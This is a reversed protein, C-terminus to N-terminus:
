NEPNENLADMDEFDMRRLTDQFEKHPFFRVKVTRVLETGLDAPNEASSANFVPKLTGIGGLQVSHGLELYHRLRDSMATAIGKVQAASVGQSMVCEKVFNEFKVPPYSVQQMVWAERMTYEPTFVSKKVKRYAISM